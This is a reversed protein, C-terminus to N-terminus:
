VIGYGLRRRYYVLVVECGVGAGRFPSVVNWVGSGLVDLSGVGHSM